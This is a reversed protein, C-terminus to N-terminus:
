RRYPLFPKFILIIRYVILKLPSFYTFIGWFVRIYKYWLFIHTISFCGIEWSAFGRTGNMIFRNVSKFFSKLRLFKFLILFTSNLTRQIDGFPFMPMYLFRRSSIIKHYKIFKLKQPYYRKSFLIWAQQFFAFFDQLKDQLFYNPLAVM